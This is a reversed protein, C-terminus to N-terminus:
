GAADLREQAAMWLEEARTTAQEIEHRKKQLENMKTAGEQMDLNPDSLKEDIARRMVDLKGHPSRM